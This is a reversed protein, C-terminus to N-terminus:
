SIRIRVHQPSPSQVTWVFKQLRACCRAKAKGCKLVPTVWAGYMSGLQDRQREEGIGGRVQMAAMQQQVEPRKMMEQM